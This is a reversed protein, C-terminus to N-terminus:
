APTLTYFKDASAQAAASQLIDAFDLLSLPFEFDWLGFGM